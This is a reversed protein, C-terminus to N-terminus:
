QRSNDGFTNTGYPVTHVFQGATGVARQRGFTEPGEWVNKEFPFDTNVAMMGYGVPLARKQPRKWANFHRAAKM